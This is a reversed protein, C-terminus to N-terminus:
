RLARFSPDIRPIHTHVHCDHKPIVDIFSPTEQRHLVPPCRLQAKAVYTNPPTLHLLSHQVCGVAPSESLFFCLPLGGYFGLSCSSFLFSNLLLFCTHLTKVLWTNNKQSGSNFWCRVIESMQEVRGVRMRLACLCVPLHCLADNHM